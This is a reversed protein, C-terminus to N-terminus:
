GSEREGAEVLAARCLERYYESGRFRAGLGLSSGQRRLGVEKWGSVRLRQIRQEKTEPVVDARNATSASEILRSVRAMDASTRNIMDALATQLHPLSPQKHQKADKSITSRDSTKARDRQKLPKVKEDGHDHNSKTPMEKEPAIMAMDRNNNTKPGFKALTTRPKAPSGKNANGKVPSRKPSKRLEGSSINTSLSSSAKKKRELPSAAAVNEKDSSEEDISLMPPKMVAVAALGRRRRPNKDM